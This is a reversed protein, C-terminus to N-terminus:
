YCGRQIQRLKGSTAEAQSPDERQPRAFYSGYIIRNSSVTNAYKEREMLGLVILILAACPPLHMPYTGMAVVSAILFSAYLMRDKRTLSFVFMGVIFVGVTGFHHFLTVWENHIPFLGGWPAGPGMGFIAGLPLTITQKIAAYWWQFRDVERWMWPLKITLSQKIYCIYAVFPLLVAVLYKWNVKRYFYWSVGVVAAALSTSTIGVILMAAIVPVFLWWKPRFFFPLTMALYATLFNNNGMTGVPTGFDLQREITYLHTYLWMLPDFQNMQGVAMITQLITSICIANIWWEKSLKSHAAIIYVAIGATVYINFALSMNVARASVGGLVQGIFFYM